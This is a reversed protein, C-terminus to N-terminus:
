ISVHGGMLFDPISCDLDKWIQDGSVKVLQEEEGTQLKWLPDESGGKCTDLQGPETGEWAAEELFVAPGEGSEIWAWALWLHRREWIGQEGWGRISRFGHGGQRSWRSRKLAHTKYEAATYPLSCLASSDRTHRHGEIFLSKRSTVHLPRQRQCCIVQSHRWRRRDCFSPQVRRSTM